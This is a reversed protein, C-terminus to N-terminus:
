HVNCASVGLHQAKRERADRERRKARVRRQAQDTDAPRSDLVSVVHDRRGGAREAEFSQPHAALPSGAAACWPVLAPRPAARLRRERGGRAGGAASCGCAAVVARNTLRSRLERSLQPTDFERPTLCEASPESVNPPRPPSQDGGGTSGQGQCKSPQKSQM